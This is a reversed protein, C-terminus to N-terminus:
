LHDQICRNYSSSGSYGDCAKAIHVAWVTFAIALVAGVAACILGAIAQGRGVHKWKSESLGITGFIIALVVLVADLLSTFCFVISLIGLM